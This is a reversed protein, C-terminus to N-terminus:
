PADAAIEIPGQTRARERAQILLDGNVLFLNNPAAPAEAARNTGYGLHRLAMDATERVFGPTAEPDDLKEDLREIAKVALGGLKSGISYADAVGAERCRRKYEGQFMDSNIIQSLWPQTVGLESACDRLLRGPNLVLWRMIGEHTHNLKTLNYDSMANVENM